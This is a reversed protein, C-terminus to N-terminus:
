GHRDGLLTKMVNRAGHWRAWLFSFLLMRYPLLCAWWFMNFLMAKQNYSTCHGTKSCLLALWLIMDGSFDLVWTPLWHQMMVILLFHARTAFAYANTRQLLPKGHCNSFHITMLITTKSITRLLCWWVPPLTGRVGIERQFCRLRQGLLSSKQYNKWIHMENQGGAGPWTHQLCITLDNTWVEVKKFKRFCHWFPDWSNVVWVLIFVTSRTLNGFSRLDLQNMPYPKSLRRPASLHSNIKRKWGFRDVLALKSMRFILKVQVVFIVFGLPPTAYTWGSRYTISHGIWTGVKKCGHGIGVYAWCWATILEKRTQTKWGQLRWSTQRKHRLQWLLMSCMNGTGLVM